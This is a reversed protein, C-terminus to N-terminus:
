LEPPLRGAVSSHLHMPSNESGVPSIGCIERDPPPL